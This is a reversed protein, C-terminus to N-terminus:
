LRGVVSRGCVKSKHGRRVTESKRCHVPEPIMLFLFVCLLVVDHIDVPLKRTKRWRRGQTHDQGATM